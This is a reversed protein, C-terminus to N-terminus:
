VRPKFDGKRRLAPVAELVKKSEPHKPFQYRRLEAIRIFEKAVDENLFGAFAYGLNQAGKRAVPLQLSVCVKDFGLDAIAQLVERRTARCPINQLMVKFLTGRTGRRLGCGGTGFSDLSSESTASPRRKQEGKFRLRAPCSSNRRVPTDCTLEDIDEIHLFTYKVKPQFAQRAVAEVAALRSECITARVSQM